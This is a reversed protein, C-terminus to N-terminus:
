MKKCSLNFNSLYIEIKESEEKGPINLKGFEWHMEAALAVESTNVDPFTNELVTKINIDCDIECGEKCNIRFPRLGLIMDGSYTPHVANGKGNYKEKSYMDYWCMEECTRVYDGGKGIDHFFAAVIATQMDIKAVIPDNINFWKIIQLASWQSHEFLNGSHSQCLRMQYPYSANSSNIKSQCLARRNFNPGAMRECADLYKHYEGSNMIQRDMADWPSAIYKTMAKKIKIINSSSNTFNISGLLEKIKDSVGGSQKRTKTARKSRKRSIFRM